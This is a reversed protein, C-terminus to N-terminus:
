CCLLVSTVKLDQVAGKSTEREVVIDFLQGIRLRGLRGICMDRWREMEEFTVLDTRPDLLARSLAHEAVETRGVCNLVEVILRAFHNEVWDRIRLIATSPARWKGAFTETVYTTMAHDMLAAFVRQSRGGGLGVTELARFIGLIKTRAPRRDDVAVGPMPEGSSQRDDPQTPPNGVLRTSPRGDGQGAHASGEQGDITMTEEGHHAGDPVQDLGLVTRVEGMLVSALLQEFRGQPVAEVIMANMDKKFRAELKPLSGLKPRGSIPDQLEGLVPFVYRSLPFLYNARADQLLQM